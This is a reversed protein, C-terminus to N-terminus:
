SRPDNGEQRIRNMEAQIKDEPLGSQRYATWYNPIIGFIGWAVIPIAPWFFNDTGTLAWIAVLLISVGIFIAVHSLFDRKAELRSIAQQRLDGDPESAEM